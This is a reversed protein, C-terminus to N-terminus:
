NGNQRHQLVRRFKTPEADLRIDQTADEGMHDLGPHPCALLRLHGGRELCVAFGINLDQSILERPLPGESCAWLARRGGAEVGQEVTRKLGRTRASACARISLASEQPTKVIGLSSQTKVHGKVPFSETVGGHVQAM